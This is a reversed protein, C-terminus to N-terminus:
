SFRQVTRGLQRATTEYNKYLKEQDDKDEYESMRTSFIGTFLQASNDFDDSFNNCLAFTPIASKGATQNFYYMIDDHMFEESIDEAASILIDASRIVQDMGTVHAVWEFSSRLIEADIMAFAGAVTKIADTSVEPHLELHYKRNMKETIFMLSDLLYSTQAENLEERKQQEKISDAYNLLITVKVRDSLLEKVSELEVDFANILPNEGQPILNGSEDRVKAGLAQLAGIGGDAISTKGLCIVINKIGNTVADLMMEGIGYSTAHFLETKSKNEALSLGVVQETDIIATEQSDITTYLYSGMKNQWFADFFPTSIWRGGITHYVLSSVGYENDSVPMTAIEADPIANWIGQSISESIKARDIQSNYKGPSIIFKM